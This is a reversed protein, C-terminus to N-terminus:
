QLVRSSFSDASPQIKTEATHQPSNSLQPQQAGSTVTHIAKACPLVFVSLFVRVSKVVASPEGLHVTGLPNFIFSIFLPIIM